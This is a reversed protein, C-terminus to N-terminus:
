QRRRAREKKLALHSTDLAKRIQHVELRGDREEFSFDWQDLRLWYQVSKRQPKKQDHVARPDESLISELAARLEDATRWFDGRSSLSNLENLISETFHVERKSWPERSVWGSQAGIASDVEPLYPKVDLIPTQDMLDVGRLWLGKPTVEELQALTLGIPNPRHPSRSALIGVTNGKLRPPRVKPKLMPGSNDHFWSLLWVHSFGELGACIEQPQIRRELELFQRLTPVHCGQRPIGFRDKFPSLIKGIPKLKFEVNPESQQGLNLLDTALPM